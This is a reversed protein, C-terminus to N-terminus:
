AKEGAVKYVVSGYRMDVEQIDSDMTKIVDLLIMMYQLSEEDLNRDTIVKVPTHIPYLVLDYGGSPRLEVHIESLASLYKPCNDRIFALRDLLPRTVSSIRYGDGSDDLALGTVLPVSPVTERNEISFVVGTKDIQVPVTRGNSSILSTAVSEREQVHVLVINPFKKEVSISEIANNAALRAAYAGSDFKLWSTNQVSGGMQLLTKESIQKLGSFHIEVAAFTPFVLTYLLAEMVLVSVLVIVLIKLLRTKKDKTVDETEEFYKSYSSYVLGDSM